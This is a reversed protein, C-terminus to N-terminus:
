IFFRDHGVHSSPCTFIARLISDENNSIQHVMKAEITFCDGKKAVFTEEWQVVNNVLWGVKMEGEGELIQYTEIDYMHYHPRLTTNPLIDAAYVSIKDDGTVKVLKIGTNMDLQAASLSQEINNIEM